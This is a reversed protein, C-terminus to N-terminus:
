CHNSRQYYSHREYTWIIVDITRSTFCFHNYVNTHAPGLSPSVALSKGCPERRATGGADRECLYLIWNEADYLRM